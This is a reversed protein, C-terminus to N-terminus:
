LRRINIITVTFKRIFELFFFASYVLSAAQPYDFIILFFLLNFPQGRRFMEVLLSLVRHSRFSAKAYVKMVQEKQEEGFWAPNVRILKEYLWFLVGALSLVLFLLNHFRLYNGVALGLFVLPTGFFLGVQELYPGLPSFKGKMRALNGDLHDGMLVIFNFLIVAVVNLVYSGVAFLYASFIELIIWSVTVMNPTVPTKALPVTLYLSVEMWFKQSRSWCQKRGKERWERSSLQKVSQKM